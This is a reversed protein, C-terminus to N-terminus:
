GRGDDKDFVLVGEVPKGDSDVGKVTVTITKGDTGVVMHETMLQKSDKTYTTDRTTENVRKASVGNYSGGQQMEGAGGSVPIIYSIAIPKGTDDTGSITVKLQDGQDSIVINEEKPTDGKTNKSKEHNMKWKGSFPNAALLIGVSFLMLLLAYKLKRM